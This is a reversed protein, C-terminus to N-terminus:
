IRRRVARFAYGTFYYLSTFLNLREVKRYLYWIRRIAEMKNSSLTNASRRYLVLNEELGYGTTGSRLIQWWTATDESKVAPMQVLHRDVHNLDILVTSTFITTNGLAQRYTITDPVHVIKGTGVGNEDAFEYGTFTFGAQHEKLFQMQRELKQPQWLDDADLFAIYGASAQELGRNRCNAAGINEALDILHIRSDQEVEQRILHVSQDKSCDNVLILEWESYTQQQVSRITDVIYKEANYVPVIISIKEM